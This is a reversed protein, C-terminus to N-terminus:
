PPGLLLELLKDPDLELKPVNEIVGKLAAPEGHSFATLDYAIPFVESPPLDLFHSLAEPGRDDYDPDFCRALHFQQAGKFVSISIASRTQIANHSNVNDILADITKGNALIVQTGVLCGDLDRVPLKLVPEVLTEGREDDNM